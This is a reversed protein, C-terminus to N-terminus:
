EVYDVWVNYGYKAIERAFIIKRKLAEKENSVGTLEIEYESESLSEYTAIHLNKLEECLLKGDEGAIALCLDHVDEIEFYLHHDEDMSELKSLNNIRIWDDHMSSAYEKKTRIRYEEEDPIFHNGFMIFKDKHLFRIANVVKLLLKSAKLRYDDSLKFGNFDVILTDIVYEIEFVIEVNKDDHLTFTAYHPTAKFKKIILGDKELHQIMEKKLLPEKKSVAVRDKQSTKILTFEKKDM